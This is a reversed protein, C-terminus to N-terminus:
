RKAIEVVVHRGGSEPQFTSRVADGVDLGEVQSAWWLFALYPLLSLVFLPSPDIQALWSLVRGMGSM